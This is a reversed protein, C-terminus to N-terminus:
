QVPPLQDLQALARRALEAREAQEAPSPRRDAFCEEVVGDPPRDRSQDRKARGHDRYVKGARHSVVTMIWARQREPSGTRVEDPCDHADLLAEQAIDSDGFRATGCGLARALDQALPAFRILIARIEARAQEITDESAM